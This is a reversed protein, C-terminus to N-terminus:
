SVAYNEPAGSSVGLRHALAFCPPSFFRRRKVGFRAAGSNSPTVGAITSSVRSQLVAKTSWRFCHPREYDFQEKTAREVLRLRREHDRYSLFIRRQRRPWERAVHLDQRYPEM